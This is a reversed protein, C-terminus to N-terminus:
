ISSQLEPYHVTWTHGEGSAALALTDWAPIKDPHAKCFDCSCGGEIERQILQPLPVFLTDGVRTIPVGNLKLINSETMNSEM